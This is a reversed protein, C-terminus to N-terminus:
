YEGGGAVLNEFEEQAFAEDPVAELVSANHERLFRVFGMDTNRIIIPMQAYITQGENDTGVGIEEAHMVRSYTTRNADLQLVEFAIEPSLSGGIPRLMYRNGFYVQGGALEMGRPEFDVGFRAQSNGTLGPLISNVYDIFLEENGGSAMSLTVSSRPSLNPGEVIFTERGEPEPFVDDLRQQMAGRLEELEIGRGRGMSYVQLTAAIIANVASPPASEIGDLSYVFETATVRGDGGGLFTELMENARSDQLFEARDRMVNRIDDTTLGADLMYDLRARQDDSLYNFAPNALRQGSYYDSVTYRANRYLTLLTEANNMNGNALQEFANAVDTPHVRMRALNQMFSQGSRSAVFAPNSLAEGITMNGLIPGYHRAVANQAAEMHSDDRPDGLGSTVQIELNYQEQAAIQRDFMEIARDRRQNFHTTVASRLQSVETSTRASDLLAIQRESLSTPQFSPDILYAGAEEVQQENVATAFFNNIYGRAANSYALQISATADQQSIGDIGRIREAYSELAPDIEDPRMGSLDSSAIELGTRQAAVHAALQRTNFPASDSRFQRVTERFNNIVDPSQLQGQMSFLMQIFPRSAEPALSPNNEDLAALIATAEDSTAGVLAELYIPELQQELVADRREIIADAMDRNTGSLSFAERTYNVYENEILRRMLIPSYGQSLRYSSRNFADGSIFDTQNQYIFLSAAIDRRTQEQAVSEATAEQEAEATEIAASVSSMFETRRNLEAEEAAVREAERQEYAELFRVRDGLLDNSFTEFADLEEQTANSMWDAVGAYEPPLLTHDQFGIADQVRALSFSDQARRTNFQLLGEAIAANVARGHSTATNSSFGPLGADVGEGGLAIVESIAGNVVTPGLLVSPGSESVADRIAEIGAAQAARQARAAAARERRIQAIGLNTRTQDLYHTGFNQIYGAWEGQAVNSMQAIYDSMAEEYMGVANPHNEFEVALERSRNQIEEELSQTYRRRIINQYADTAISGFSADAQFAQPAGTAPDITLISEPSAAQAREEGIQQAQRAGAEFLMGAIQNASSSIQQGVIRGGESARAVGINGIQFRRQERVVPM